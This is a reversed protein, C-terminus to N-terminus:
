APAGGRSGDAGHGKVTVWTVGQDHPLRGIVVHAMERAEDRRAGLAHAKVVRDLDLRGGEGCVVDLVALRQYPWVGRGLGARAADRSGVHSM